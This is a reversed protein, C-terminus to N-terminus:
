SSECGPETMRPHEAEPFTIPASSLPVEILAISTPEMVVSGPGGGSGEYGPAVLVLWGRALSAGAAERIRRREEPVPLERKARLRELLDSDNRSPTGM